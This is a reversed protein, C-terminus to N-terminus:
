AAYKKLSRWLIEDHGYVDTRFEIRGNQPWATQYSILLYVPKKTGFWKPRLQYSNVTDRKREQKRRFIPMKTTDLPPLDVEMRLLDYQSKSRVLLEAFELPKEIRVCGHSIARNRLKFGYKNNTDHLYISSGNNFIFKFKGLANGEGSGQKFQYPLKNRPYRSWQITDPEGIEVGKRYVKINSNSLYYPDKLAQYYIESQAISVPINWIPNAQISNIRSALLPTEHNRPKDDLSGTQLYRKMKEEYAKERPGGVCVKMFALTDTKDFWTLSFDPINVLVMEDDENAPMQWRMREMNIKLTRLTQQDAGSRRYAALAAQMQKYAESAPQVSELTKLLDDTQLVQKMFTSDPRGIRIYFRSLLKRPNVAGFKLFNSYKLLGEAANLELAAVVPYVEEISSFRNANLQALLAEIQKLRFIKPDLGHLDARKLYDRLSDLGGTAYFSQVLHPEYEQAAYLSRITQPNSFHSALSDAVRRFVPIYAATDFKKYLKNDLHEALVSGVEPVPKFWGCASLCLFFPIILRLNRKM